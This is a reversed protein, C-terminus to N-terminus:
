KTDSPDERIYNQPNIRFDSEIRNARSWMFVTPILWLFVALLGYRFATDFNSNVGVIQPYTRIVAMFLALIAIEVVVIFISNSHERLHTYTDRVERSKSKTRALVLQQYFSLFAKEETLMRFLVAYQGILIWFVPMSLVWWIEVGAPRESPLAVNIFCDGIIWLSLFSFASTVIIEIRGAKAPEVSEKRQRRHKDYDCILFLVIPVSLIYELYEHFFSSAGFLGKVVILAAWGLWFYRSKGEFWGSRYRGAHLVTIPSSAIYCFGIGLFSILFLLVSWDPKGQVTTSTVKNFLAPALGSKVSVLVVAICGVIFGSFYRVLYSEWWRTSPQEKSRSSSSESM